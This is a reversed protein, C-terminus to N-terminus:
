NPADFQKLSVDNVHAGSCVCTCKSGDHYCRHQNWNEAHLIQKRDHTVKIATNDKVCTTPCAPTPYPTPYPTPFPTPYATPAPTILTCTHAVHPADCGKSCWHTQKCSCGWTNGGKKYCIGAASKDCGHSGDDNFHPYVTETYLEYPHTKRIV